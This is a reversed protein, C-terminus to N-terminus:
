DGIQVTLGVSTLLETNPQEPGDRNSCPVFLRRIVIDDNAELTYM